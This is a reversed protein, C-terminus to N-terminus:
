HSSIASRKGSWVIPRGRRLSRVTRFPIRQIRQESCSPTIQGLAVAPPLRHVVPKPLPLGGPKEIANQLPEVDFEILSAQNVIGRPHDVRGRDARTASGSACWRFFPSWGKRDPGRVNGLLTSSWFGDRKRRQHPAEQQGVKRRGAGHCRATSAASPSPELAGDVVPAVEFAGRFTSQQGLSHRWIYGASGGGTHCGPWSGQVSALCPAFADGGLVAAPIQRSARRLVSRLRFASRSSSLTDCARLGSRRTHM